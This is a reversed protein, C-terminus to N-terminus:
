SCTCDARARASRIAQRVSEDSPSRDDHSAIGTSNREAQFWRATLEVWTVGAAKLADFQAGLTPALYDERSWGGLAVGKQFGADGVGARAAFASAVLVLCALLVRRESGMASAIPISREARARTRRM